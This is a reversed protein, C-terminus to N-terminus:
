ASAAADGDSLGARDVHQLHRGADLERDHLAAELDSRPVFGSSEGVLDIGTATGFGFDEAYKKLRDVGLGEFETQGDLNYPYGGGVEYFFVNMSHQLAQVVNQPGFGPRYWGYFKQALALNDPAFQNPVVIVGPDNIITRPTIM